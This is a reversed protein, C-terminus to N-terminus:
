TGAELRALGACLQDLYLRVCEPCGCGIYRRASGQALAMRKVPLRPEIHELKAM